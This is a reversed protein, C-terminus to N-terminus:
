ATLSKTMRGIVFAIAIGVGIFAMPLFPIYFVIANYFTHTMHGNAVVVWIHSVALAVLTAWMWATMQDAAGAASKITDRFRQRQFWCAVLFGAIFLGIPVTISHIPLPVTVAGMGLYRFYRLVPRLVPLYREMTADSVMSIHLKHMVSLVANDYGNHLGEGNSLTRRGAEKSFLRLSGYLDKQVFAFQMLLLFVSSCFAFISLVGYRLIRMFIQQLSHGRRLGYYIFPVAVAAFINTIYDYGCLCKLLCFLTFLVALLRRQSQPRAPDGLLWAVIFPIFFTSCIYFLDPAFVILWNSLALLIATTGACIMGFERLVVWVFVTFTLAEVTELLTRLYPVEHMAGEPTNPSVLSYFIRHLGVQMFYQSYGGDAPLQIEGLDRLLVPGRAYLEMTPIIYSDVNQNSERQTKEIQFINWHYSCFLLLFTFFLCVTKQISKMNESRIWDEM